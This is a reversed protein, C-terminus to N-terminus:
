KDLYNRLFENILERIETRGLEAKTKDIFDPHASKNRYDSIIISLNNLFTLELINQDFHRVLYAYLDSLIDSNTRINADGVSTLIFAMTGLEFFWKSDDQSGAYYNVKKVYKQTTNNSFDNSFQRSVNVNRSKIDWIYSKFIKSLIENEIARCYQIIFPSFDSEPYTSLQTYLFEASPLYDKTFDELKEWEFELWRKVIESYDDLNPIKNPLDDLRKHLLIIKEEVDLVTNKVLNVNNLTIQILESIKELRSDIHGLRLDMDGLKRSSNKVEEFIRLNEQIVKAFNDKLFEIIPDNNKKIAEIIISNISENDFNYFTTNEKIVSKSPQIKTNEFSLITHGLSQKFQNKFKIFLEDQSNILISAENGQSDVNSSTILMETENWIMESHLLNINFLQVNELSDISYKSILSNVDQWYVLIIKVGRDNAEYIKQIIEDSFMIYPISIFLEKQANRLISLSREHKNNVFQEM